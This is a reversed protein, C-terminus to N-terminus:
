AVQPWGKLQVKYLNKAFSSASLSSTARNAKGQAATLSASTILAVDVGGGGEEREKRPWTRWWPPSPSGHWSCLPSSDLQENYAGAEKLYM